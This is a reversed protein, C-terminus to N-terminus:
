FLDAFPESCGPRELFSNEAETQELWHSSDAPEGPKKGDLWGAKQGLAAVVGAKREGAWLGVQLDM